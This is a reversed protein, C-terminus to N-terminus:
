YGIPQPVTWTQSVPLPPVPADPRLPAPAIEVMDDSSVPRLTSPEAANPQLIQAELAGTVTVLRQEHLQLTRFRSYQNSWQQQSYVTWGYLTLAIATVVSAGIFSSRQAFVLLRIAQPYTQKRGAITAVSSPRTATSQNARFESGVPMQPSPTSLPALAVAGRVQLASSDALRRDSPRNVHNTRIQRSAASHRVTTRNPM